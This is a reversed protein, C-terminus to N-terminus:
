HKTKKYNHLTKLKLWIKSSHIKILMFILDHNHNLNISTLFLFITILM